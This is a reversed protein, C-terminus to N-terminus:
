RTNDHRNFYKFEITTISLIRFSRNFTLYGQRNPASVVFNVDDVNSDEKNPRMNLSIIGDLVRKTITDVLQDTENIQLVDASPPIRSKVGALELPTTETVIDQLIKVM